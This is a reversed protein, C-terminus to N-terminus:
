LKCTSYNMSVEGEVEGPGPRIVAWRRGVPEQRAVPERRAMPEQRGVPEQREPPVEQRSEPCNHRVLSNTGITSSAATFKLTIFIKNALIPDLHKGLIKKCHVCQALGQELGNYVVTKFSSWALAPSRKGTPVV